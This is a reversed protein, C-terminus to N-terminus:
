KAVEVKPVYKYTYAETLQHAIFASKKLFTAAGSTTVIRRSVLGVCSSTLTTSQPMLRCGVTESLLLIESRKIVIQHGCHVLVWWHVMFSPHYTTM